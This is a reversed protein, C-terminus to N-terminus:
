RLDGIDLGSIKWEEMKRIALRIRCAINTSPPNKRIKLDETVMPKTRSPM